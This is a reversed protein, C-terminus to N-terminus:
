RTPMAEATLKDQEQAEQQMALEAADVAVKHALADQKETISATIKLKELALKAMAIREDSQLKQIALQVNAEAARANAQKVQADAQKMAVEAAQLPNPPPPLSQQGIILDINTFGLAELGRRAVYYQQQPGFNAALGPMEALAKAATAWKAAEKEQEGYGLTFSVSVTCDEPWQSFDVPTWNGAIQVIKQRNENEVVLRYIESYLPRLFREAFNRAIVKQRLQSVTILEHVMNESNQSSIADKNLGQSLASISTIEEKNAKLMEITQFIFPNLPQQELPILTDPRRVNVIGGFRNETLERPNMLGGNVVQIRPNTTVMAHNTIARTLYSRANQTGIVLKAFNTGWFAKPRPLPCFDIFPKVDVPEKDLIFTGCKTIKFLQTVGKATDDDGDDSLDLETYCEYVMCTRRGLQGNELVHEGIMDDTDMFRALKEPQQAMWLRDDNQLQTVIKRDYGAKILASVTMERRHFVLDADKISNSMPSIGFEEPALLDICVQSVDRTLRLQVHQMTVGDEALKMQVVQPNQDAHAQIYGTLEELTPESLDFYETKTRRDWWVKCVANRNLLGSKITDRILGFGDNQNFLVYTCYDTRTKSAEPGENQIPDIEVPRHNASFTEVLQATMSEVADFVDLSVYGSDRQSGKRPREQNYYELVRTNERSLKSEGYGVSQGIGYDLLAVIADDKLKPQRGDNSAM